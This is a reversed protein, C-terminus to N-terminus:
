GKRSALMKRIKEVLDKPELATKLLYEEAGYKTADKVTKEKDLNSFVIVPIDKTLSDGKLQKLIEIGDEENLIVDLLILEPDERRAIEIGETGTTASLFNFGELKFKTEYLFIQDRDDEILLIKNATAM